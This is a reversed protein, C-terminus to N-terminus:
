PSVGLFGLRITRASVIQRAGDNGEDFPANRIRPAQAGTSKVQGPVQRAVNNNDIPVEIDPGAIDNRGSGSRSTPAM